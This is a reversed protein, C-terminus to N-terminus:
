QVMLTLTLTEASIPTYAARVEIAYYLTQAGSVPVNSIISGITPYCIGYSVDSGAENVTCDMSGIWNALTLNATFTGYDAVATTPAANFLHIRFIANTIVIGSKKLLGGVITFPQDIAKAPSITPFTVSGASANNAWLQGLVYASTSTTHASANGVAITPVPAPAYVPLPNTSAVDGSNVGDAGFILKIRQYLISSISDAAVTAGIGPTVALNDAM